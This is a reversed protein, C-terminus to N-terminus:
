SEFTPAAAPGKAALEGDNRAEADSLGMALSEKYAAANFDSGATVTPQPNVGTMTVKYDVQGPEVSGVSHEATALKDLFEEFSMGLKPALRTASDKLRLLLKYETGGVVAAVVKGHRTIAVSKLSDSEVHKLVDSLERRLDTATTSGTARFDRPATEPTNTVELVPNPTLAPAVEPVPTPNTDTM